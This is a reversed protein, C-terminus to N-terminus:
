FTAVWGLSLTGKKDLLPLFQGTTKDEPLQPQTKKHEYELRQYLFRWRSNHSNPRVWVDIVEWLRFAYFALMGATMLGFGSSAENNCGSGWCTFIDGLGQAMGFGVLTLAALEGVTFVWGMEGYKGVVAHGLGLGLFTGVLGGAIYRGQPIYGESFVSREEPTLLSLDFKHAEYYDNAKLLDSFSLGLFLFLVTLFRKLM